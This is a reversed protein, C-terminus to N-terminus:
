VRSFGSSKSIESNMFQKMNKSIDHFSDALRESGTQLEEQTITLSPAVRLVNAGSEGTVVGNELHKKTVKSTSLEPNLVIGRWLGTGTTGVIVDPNDRQMEDVSEDLQETRQRINNKTEDRELIDLTKNVFAMARINGGFTSGHMGPKIQDAIENTMVVAGVPYEGGGLAKASSIIDPKFGVDSFLRSAWFNDAGTRMFGSQVEDAFIPINHKKSGDTIAKIFERSPVRIGAEGQTPELLVYAAKEGNKKLSGELMM